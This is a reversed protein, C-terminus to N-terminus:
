NSPVDTPDHPAAAFSRLRDALEELDIPCEASPDEAGARIWAWWREWQEEEIGRAIDAEVELRIEEQLTLEQIPTTPSSTVAEGAQDLHELGAAEFMQWAEDAEHNARWEEEAMWETWNEAMDLVCARYEGRVGSWEDVGDEAIAVFWADIPQETAFHHALEPRVAITRDRAWNQEAALVLSELRGFWGGPHSESWVRVTSGGSARRMRHRLGTTRERADDLLVEYREIERCEKTYADLDIAGSPQRARASAQADLDLLDRMEAQSLAPPRLDRSSRSLRSLLVQDESQADRCRLLGAATEFELGSGTSTRDRPDPTRMSPSALLELPWQPGGTAHLMMRQTGMVWGRDHNQGVFDIREFAMTRGTAANELIGPGIRSPIWSPDSQRSQSTTRSEDVAVGLVAFSLPLLRGSIRFRTPTENKSSVERCRRSSSMLTSLWRQAEGESEFRLRISHGTDSRLEYNESAEGIAHLSVVLDALGHRMM